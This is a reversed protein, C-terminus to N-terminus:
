STKAKTTKIEGTRCHLTYQDTQGNITVKVQLAYRSRPNTESVSFQVESPKSTPALLVAFRADTNEKKLRLNYGDGRETGWTSRGKLPLLMKADSVQVNTLQEPEAELVGFKHALAGQKNPRLKLPTNFIWEYTHNEKATMFDFVIAYQKEHNLLICRQHGVGKKQYGRHTFGAFEVAGKQTWYLLRGKRGEIEPGQGDVAVTNHAYVSKYWPQHLPDDYSLGRGCDVGLQRGQAWFQFALAEEHSHGGGYPGYNLVFYLADKSWDSRTSWFGSAKLDFATQSPKKPSVKKSLGLKQASKQIESDTAQSAWVLEKNGSTLGIRLFQDQPIDYESDGVSPSHGSPTIVRMTWILMNEIADLLKECQQAVAPENKLIRYVDWFSNVVGLHYHPAREKHCGDAYVDRRAHTLIWKMGRQLWRTAERFEPFSQGTICLAQAGFVQWNGGRYATEHRHLWRGHGLITKLMMEQYATNEAAKSDLTAFYMDRFITVRKCGLEYWIVDFRLDSQVLDRQRYWQMFIEVFTQAYIEKGTLEYAIKLPTIWGFYHFGYNTSGGLNRSFDIEGDYQIRTGGWCKIDRAVVLDAEKIIHKKDLDARVQEGRNDKNENALRTKLYQYWAQYAASWDEEKALTHIKKLAPMSVKLSAFLDENTIHKIRKELFEDEAM